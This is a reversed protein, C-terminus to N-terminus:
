NPKPHTDTINEELFGAARHTKYCQKWTVGQTQVSMEGFIQWVALAKIRHSNCNMVYSIYPPHTQCEPFCASFDFPFPRHLFFAPLLLLHPAKLCHHLDSMQSLLSPPPLAVWHLRCIIEPQGNSFPPFPELLLPAAM